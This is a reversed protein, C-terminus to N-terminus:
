AVYRQYHQQRLRFVPVRRTANREVLPLPDVLLFTLLLRPKGIERMVALQDNRLLAPVVNLEVLRLYHGIRDPEDYARRPTM